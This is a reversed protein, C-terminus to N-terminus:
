SRSRLRSSSASSRSSVSRRAGKSSAEPMMTDALMTLVAGAAFAQTFAGDADRVHSVLVYGVASSLAAAAVVWVWMRITRRGEWGEIRLAGTAAVAEPLNSVFVVFLFAGPVAGGIALSVGLVLSEPIGDLVTGPRV